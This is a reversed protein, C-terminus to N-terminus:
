HHYAQTTDGHRYAHRSRTRLAVLELAPQAAFRAGTAVGWALDSVDARGCRKCPALHDASNM